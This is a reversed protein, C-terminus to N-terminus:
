TASDSSFEKLDDPTVGLLNAIKIREYDQYSMLSSKVVDRKVPGIRHEGSYPDTLEEANLLATMFVLGDKYPLVLKTYSFELVMYNEKPKKAQVKKAASTYNATDVM